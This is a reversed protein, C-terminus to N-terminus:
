QPNSGSDIADTSPKRAVILKHWGWTRELARFVPRPLM